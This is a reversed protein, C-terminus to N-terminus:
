KAAPPQTQPQPDFSAHDAVYLWKGNVLKSVDTFRGQVQQPQGGAKPTLMMKWRGWGVSINGTTEHHADFIEFNSIKNNNMLGAYGQRIAAKGQAVPIDPPYMIADDAYLSVVGELDNAGFSKAFAQGVPNPGDAAKCVIPTLLMLIGIFLCIKRM